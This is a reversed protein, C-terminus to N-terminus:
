EKLPIDGIYMTNTYLGMRSINTHKGDEDRAFWIVVYQNEVQYYLITIGSGMAGNPKGIENEIEEYTTNSNLNYFYDISVERDIYEYSAFMNGIAIMEMNKNEMNGYMNSKNFLIFLVISIVAVVGILKKLMLLSPAWKKNRAKRISEFNFM